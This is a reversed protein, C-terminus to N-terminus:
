VGFSSGCGCTVNANPNTMQFYSGILDEKFDLESGKLLDLSTEDVVVKIGNKEFLLDDDNVTEDLDFGYSFGSCGGASVAIRLMLNPNGDQDKLQGIRKAASDSILIGEEPALQTGDPM